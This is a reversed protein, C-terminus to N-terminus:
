DNINMKGGNGIGNKRLTVSVLVSLGPRDVSSRCPYSSWVAIWAARGFYTLTGVQRTVGHAQNFATTNM